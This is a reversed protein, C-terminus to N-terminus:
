LRAAMDTAIQFCFMPIHAPFINGANADNQPVFKLANVSRNDPSGNLVIQRWELLRQEILSNKFYCRCSVPAYQMEGNGTTVLLDFASM